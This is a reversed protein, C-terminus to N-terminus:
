SIERNKHFHARVLARRQDMDQTVHILYVGVPIELM